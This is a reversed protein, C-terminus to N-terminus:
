VFRHTSPPPNAWAIADEAAAVYIHGGHPDRDGVHLVLTPVDRDLARDAFARKGKIGDFGGGSYVPVGYPNAIRALRPALDAAECLVEVHLPQDRQPDLDFYEAADAVRSVVSAVEEEVGQDYSNAIVEAARGDAVWSERVMGARRALALVEQVAAPHVEMSGFDRIPHESDPKRYTAGNGRGNPRLDYFIGRPGRPLTGNAYHEQYVALVDALIAKQRETTPQWDPQPGRPRKSMASEEDGAFMPADSM